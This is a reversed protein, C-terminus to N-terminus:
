CKTKTEQKQWKTREKGRVEITKALFKSSNAKEM